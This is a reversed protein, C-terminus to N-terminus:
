ISYQIYQTEASYHWFRPPLHPSPLHPRRLCRFSPPYSPFLFCDSLCESRKHGSKRTCFFLQHLLASNSSSGPAASPAPRDSAAGELGASHCNATATATLKSRQANTTPEMRAENTDRAEHIIARRLRGDTRGSIVDGKRWSLGESETEFARVRM